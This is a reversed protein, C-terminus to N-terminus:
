FEGHIHCERGNGGMGCRFSYPGDWRTVPCGGAQKEETGAMCNFWKEFSNWWLLCKIYHQIDIRDNGSGSNALMYIHNFDLNLM